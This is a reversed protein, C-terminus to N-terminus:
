MCIIAFGKQFSHTGVGELELYVSVARLHKMVVHESISFLRISPLIKHEYAYDCIFHYIEDSVTFNRYKGM